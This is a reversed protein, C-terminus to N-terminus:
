KERMISNVFDIAFTSEKEDSEYKKKLQRELRDTMHDKSDKIEDKYKILIDSMKAISEDFPMDLITDEIDHGKYYKTNLGLHFSVTHNDVSYGIVVGAYLSIINWIKICGDSCLELSSEIDFNKFIDHIFTEIESIHKESEKDLTITTDGKRFDIRSILTENDDLEPIVKNKNEELYDIVYKKFQNITVGEYEEYMFKGTDPDECRISVIGNVYDFLYNYSIVVMYDSHRICWRYSHSDEDISKEVYASTFTSNIWNEIERIKDHLNKM